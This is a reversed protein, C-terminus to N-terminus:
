LQLIKAIANKGKAKIIEVPLIRGRVDSSCEATVEIFNETHGVAYRGDWTEFLVTLTKGTYSRIIDEGTSDCLATLIRNREKKIEEPIQLPMAAAETGARKSYSFIHGHLLKARSLFDRTSAFDEESEGPFGVIIDASFCIDPIVSRLYEINREAQETNYKRRMARLTNDCGSQLSLHFHPCLHKMGAAADAFRKGAFSPDLSGLRIREIGPLRDIKALLTILDTDQLDRGYAATEIGTLVIEKYGGAILGEVEKIVEAESKSRVRGRAAPIICYACRNECGDEIKVYARTRGFTSISMPEFSATAGDPIEVIPKGNKEGKEFLTLLATVTSMKNSSGCIYDIGGIDAITDTETQAYCGTVLLYAAPNEKKARRIFQRAKRASEATVTCTNIIYADCVEGADCVVVGHKSLAQAIAESEYQNVRCGLTYIGVTM